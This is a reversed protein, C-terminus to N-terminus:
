DPANFNQVEKAQSEGSTTRSLQTFRDELYQNGFGMIRCVAQNSLGAMRATFDLTFAFRVLEPATTQQSLHSPIEEQVYRDALQQFSSYSLNRFFSSVSGDAMVQVNIADGQQKLLGIINEITEEDKADVTSGVALTKGFPVPNEATPSEKVEKVIKKLEESVKEYYTNTPEVSVVEPIHVKSSLNLTTPKEPKKSEGTSRFSFKKRLSKIKVSKGLRPSQQTGGSSFESVPICFVEQPTDPPTGGGMREPSPDREEKEDSEKRSFLSLFTKFFSRKGKKNSKKPKKKPEARDEPDAQDELDVHDGTHGHVSQAQVDPDVCVGPEVYGEPGAYDESQLLATPPELPTVQFTRTDLVEWPSLHASSDSSHRRVRQSKKARTVWKRPKLRQRNEAESGDNLSLSRRVYVELLRQTDKRGLSLLQPKDVSQM